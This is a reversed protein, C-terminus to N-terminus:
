DVEGLVQLAQLERTKSVLVKVEGMGNVLIGLVPGASEYKLLAPIGQSELKGKIVQARLPGMSRYVVVLEEPENAKARPRSKDSEPNM